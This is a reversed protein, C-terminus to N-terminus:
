RRRDRCIGHAAHAREPRDAAADFAYIGFEQVCHRQRAGVGRMSAGKLRLAQYRREPWLAIWWATSLQREGGCASRVTNGSGWIDYEEPIDKITSLLISSQSGNKPIDPECAACGRSVPLNSLPRTSCHSRLVSTDCSVLPEKPRSSGTGTV